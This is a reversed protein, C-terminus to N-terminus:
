TKRQCIVKAPIEVRRYDPPMTLLVINGIAIFLVGTPMLRVVSVNVTLTSEANRQMRGKRRGNGGQVKSGASEGGYPNLFYRWKIAYATM